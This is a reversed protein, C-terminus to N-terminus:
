VPRHPTLQSTFVTSTQIILYIVVGNSWSGRMVLAAVSKFHPVVTTIFTGVGREREREASLVTTCPFRQGHLRGRGSGRRGGSATTRLLRGVDDDRKWEMIESSPLELSRSRWPLRQPDDPSTSRRRSGPRRRKGREKGIEMRETRERKRVRKKPQLMFPRGTGTSSREFRAGEGGGACIVNGGM